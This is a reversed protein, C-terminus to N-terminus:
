ILRDSDAHDVLNCPNVRADISDTPLWHGHLAKPYEASPTKEAALLSSFYQKRTLFSASKATRHSISSGLM